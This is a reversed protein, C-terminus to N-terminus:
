LCLRLQSARSPAIVRPAAHVVTGVLDFGVPVVDDDVLLELEALEDDEVVEVEVDVEVDVEVEVVVDVEVEVEVEFPM